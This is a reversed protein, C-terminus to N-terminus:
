FRPYPVPHFFVEHLVLQRQLFVQLYRFFSSREHEQYKRVQGRYEAHIPILRLKKYSFLRQVILFGMGRLYLTKTRCKVM